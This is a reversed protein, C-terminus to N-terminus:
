GKARRKAPAKKELLLGLEDPVGLGIEGGVITYDQGTAEGIAIMEPGACDSTKGRHHLGDLMKLARNTLRLTPTKM